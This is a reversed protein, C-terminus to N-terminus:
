QNYLCSIQGFQGGCQISLQLFTSSPMNVDYVFIIKKIQMEQLFFATKPECLIWNEM